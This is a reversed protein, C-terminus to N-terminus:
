NCDSPQFARNLDLLKYPKVIIECQQRDQCKELLSADSEHLALIIRAEPWKKRLYDAAILSKRGDGLGALIIAVSGKKEKSDGFHDLAEELKRAALAKYGLYSVMECATALDEEGEDVVLVVGRGTPLISESSTEDKEKEAIAPFYITFTTGKGPVSDVLIRGDHKKVISHVIALGLGLGKEANKERTSFYPDFIKDIIDASIGRGEDKMVVRVYRGGDLGAIEDEDLVINTFGITIVGGGAMSQYANKILSRMMQSIQVSNVAVCWLNDEVEVSYQVDHDVRLDELEEKVLDPLYGEAKVPKEMKAFSQLKATLERARVAANKATLIYDVIKSDTGGMREALALNGLVVQLINNFDHAIGSALIGVSEFKRAELLEQEMKLKDTIDGISWVIGDLTGSGRTVRGRVQCVFDSQDKKKLRIQGECVGEKQLQGYLEDGVKEFSQDDAYFIRTSKGMLEEPSYGTIHILEANFKEIERNENVFLIGVPSNDLIAQLEASTKLLHLNTKEAENKAKSLDKTRERVKQELTQFSEKLRRTMTSFAAALRGIEDHSDVEIRTDLNGATILKASRELKELPHIVYFRFIVLSTFLISLILLFLLSIVSLATSWLERAVGSKSLIIRLTGAQVDGHMIKATKVLYNSSGSYFDPERLQVGPQVLESVIKGDVMVSIYVIAKNFLVARLIDNISGYDLQWVANPLSTEALKLAEDMQLELQREKTYNGYILIVASFICSIVIVVSILILSFRNSLSRNMKLQAGTYIKKKSM